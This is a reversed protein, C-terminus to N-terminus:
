QIRGLARLVEEETINHFLAYERVTLIQVSSKQYHKKLMAYHRKATALQVDQLVMIDNPRVVISHPKINSKM